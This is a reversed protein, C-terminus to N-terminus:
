IIGATIARFNGCYYSPKSAPCFVEMGAWGHPLPSPSAPTLAWWEPRQSRPWCVCSQTHPLGSKLVPIKVLVSPRKVSPLTSFMEGKIHITRVPSSQCSWCNPSIKRELFHTHYLHSNAIQNCATLLYCTVGSM